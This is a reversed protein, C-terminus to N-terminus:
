NQERFVIRTGSTGLDESELKLNQLRAFAQAAALGWSYGNRYAWDLAEGVTKIDKDGHVLDDITKQAM